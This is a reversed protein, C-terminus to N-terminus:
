NELRLHSSADSYICPGLYTTLTHQSMPCVGDLGLWPQFSQIMFCYYFRPLVVVGLHDALDDGLRSFVSFVGEDDIMISIRPGTVWFPLDHCRNGRITPASSWIRIHPPFSPGLNAVLDSAATGDQIARRKTTTEQTQTQPQRPNVTSTM